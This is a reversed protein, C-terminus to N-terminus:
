GIGSSSRARVSALWKERHRHRPSSCVSPQAFAGRRREPRPARPRTPVYACGTGGRKARRSGGSMASSPRDNRDSAGRRRDRANAAARRSHAPRLHSATTVRWLAGYAGLAAMAGRDALRTARGLSKEAMDCRGDAGVPEARTASWVAPADDLSSAGNRSRTVAVTQMELPTNERTERHRGRVRAHREAAFSSPRRCRRGRPPRARERPRTRSPRPSPPRATRRRRASPPPPSPHPRARRPAKATGAAAGACAGAGAGAAGGAGARYVIGTGVSSPSSAITRTSSARGRGFDAAVSLAPDSSPRGNADSSSSTSRSRVAARAAAGGGGRASAGTADASAPRSHTSLYAGRANRSSSESSRKLRWTSRHILCHSGCTKPTCRGGAFAAARAGCGPRKVDGALGHAPPRASAAASAVRGSFCIKSM